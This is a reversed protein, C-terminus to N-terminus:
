CDYLLCQYGEFVGHLSLLPSHCFLEDFIRGLKMIRQFSGVRRKARLHASDLGSHPGRDTVVVEDAAGAFGNVRQEAHPLCLVNIELGNDRNSHNREEM